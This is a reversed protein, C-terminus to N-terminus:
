HDLLPDPGGDLERTAVVILTGVGGLVVVFVLLFLVASRFASGSLVSVRRM